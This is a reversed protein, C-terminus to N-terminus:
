KGKFIKILKNLSMKYAPGLWPRKTGDRIGYELHKGYELNTGVVGVSKNASDDIESGISQILTGRDTNPADGPKSVTVERKPNYRTKKEGNSKQQILKKAQSEVVLCAQVLKVRMDGQQKKATMEIKNQLKDLGLIKVSFSM